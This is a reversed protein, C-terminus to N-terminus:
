IENYARLADSANNGDYVVAVGHTVRLDGRMSVDLHKRGYPATASAFQVFHEATWKRLDDLTVEHADVPANREKLQLRM